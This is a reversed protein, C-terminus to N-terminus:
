TARSVRAPQSYGERAAELDVDANAAAARTCRLTTGVCQRAYIQWIDSDWRGIIQIEIAPTGAAFHDTAGGIRGSHGGYDAPDLGIAKAARKFLGRVYQTTAPARGSSRAGAVWFLPASLGWTGEAKREELMRSVAAYASTPDTSHPYLTPVKSNCGPAKKAPFISIVMHPEPSTEFSVDGCVPDRTADFAGASEPGLERARLLGERACTLLAEDTADLVGRVPGIAERLQRQNLARWGLRRRRVDGIMRRLGRLLKPLRTSAETFVINCGMDLGLGVKVLSTYNTCTNAAYGLESMWCAFLMLSYENHCSAELDGVIRPRMVMVPRQPEYKERFVAFAALAAARTARSAAKYGEEVLQLAGIQMEEFSPMRQSAKEYFPKRGRKAGGGGEEAGVGARRRDGGIFWQAEGPQAGAGSGAGQGGGPTQGLAEEWSERSARGLLSERRM